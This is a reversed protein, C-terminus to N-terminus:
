LSPVGADAHEDEGLRDLKAVLEKTPLKSCDIKRQLAIVYGQIIRKLHIADSRWMKNTVYPEEGSLVRSVIKISGFLPGVTASVNLIDEIRMSVVDGTAFFRKRTITVKARDVTITDPFIPMVTTAVALLNESGKIAQDLEKRVEKTSMNRTPMTEVQPSYQSTPQNEPSENKGAETQREADRAQATDQQDSIQETAM